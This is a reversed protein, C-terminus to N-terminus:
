VKPVTLPPPIGPVGETHFGATLPSIVEFNLLLGGIEEMLCVGHKM